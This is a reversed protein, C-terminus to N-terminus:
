RNLVFKRSPIATPLISQQEGTQATTEISDNSADTGSQM